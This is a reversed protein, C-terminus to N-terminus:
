VLSYAETNAVLAPDIKGQQVALYLDALSQYQPYSYKPDDCKKVDAELLPAKLEVEATRELHYLIMGYRPSRGEAEDLALGNCEEDVTTRGDFKLSPQRGALCGPM